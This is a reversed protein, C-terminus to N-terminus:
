KCWCFNRCCSPFAVSFKPVNQLAEWVCFKVIRGLPVTAVEEVTQGALASIEASLKVKLDECALEKETATGEVGTVRVFGMVPLVRCTLLKWGEHVEEQVTSLLVAVTVTPPVRVTGPLASM